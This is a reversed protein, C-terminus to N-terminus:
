CVRDALYCSPQTKKNTQLNTQKKVKEVLALLLQKSRQCALWCFMKRTELKKKQGGTSDESM